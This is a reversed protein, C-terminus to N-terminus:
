WTNIYNSIIQIAVAAVNTHFVRCWDSLYVGHLKTLKLENCISRKNVPWDWRFAIQSCSLPNPRKILSKNRNELLRCRDPYDKDAKRSAEWINRESTTTNRREKIRQCDTIRKFYRGTAKEVSSKTIENSIESLPDIKKDPTM